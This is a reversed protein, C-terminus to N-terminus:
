RVTRELLDRYASRLVNATYKNERDQNEAEYHLNVLTGLRDDRIGGVVFQLKSLVPQMQGVSSIYIRSDREDSVVMSPAELGDGQNPYVMGLIDEMINVTTRTRPAEIYSEKVNITKDLEFVVYPTYKFGNGTKKNYYRNSDGMEFNKCRVEMRNDKFVPNGIDLAPNLGVGILFPSVLDSFEKEVGHIKKDYAKILFEEYKKEEWPLLGLLTKRGDVSEIKM